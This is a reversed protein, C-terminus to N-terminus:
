YAPPDPKFVRVRDASLHDEFVGELGSNKVAQDLMAAALSLGGDEPGV